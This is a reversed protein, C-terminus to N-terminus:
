RLKQRALAENDRAVQFDPKLRVAEEFKVLAERYRQLRFLSEGAANWIEPNDPVLNKAKEFDILANEHQGQAQLAKGKGLWAQALDPQVEIAKSFSAIAQPYKKLGNLALGKGMLARADDPKIELVKEFSGLAESYRELKGLALGRHLWTEPDDQKIKIAKQYVALAESYKELSLLTFGYRNLTVFSEPQIQLAEKFAESAEAFRTESALAEGKSFWATFSRPDISTAKDFSAIAMDYRNLKLQARGRGNWAEISNPEKVLARDFVGVAEDYKQLEILRDGEVLLDATKEPPSLFKPILIVGALVLLIVPVAYMYSSRLVKRWAPPQPSPPFAKDIDELVADVSQYRDAFNFRVMKDLIAVLKPNVLVGEIWDLESTHKDLKLGELSKGTLAQIVTVGLAYIDSSFRPRGSQQEIAMYGPSGIIRTVSAHGETNIVMASLQKVAGFDILVIKGDKSRRMLNSPKIDRHIVQNDHVFKLVMLVERLIRIAEAETLKETTAIEESLTQGQVFEQVLYFEQNEEFYALMEPIQPHERGLNALVEAEQAFLQKAERLLDPNNSTPKLHKVVVQRNMVRIDEALYTEAFGGQGIKDVIRYRGDLIRGVM